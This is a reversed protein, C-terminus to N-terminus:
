QIEEVGYRLGYGKVAAYDECQGAFLSAEGETGFPYADRPDGVWMPSGDDDAGPLDVHGAYYAMVQGMWDAETVVWAM